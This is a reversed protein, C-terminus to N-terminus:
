SKPRAFWWALLHVALAALALYLNLSPELESAWAGLGVALLLLLGWGRGYWPSGPFFLQVGWRWTRRQTAGAPRPLFLVSFQYIGVMLLLVGVVYAQWAASWLPLSVWVALPNRVLEHVAAGQWALWLSRLTPSATRSIGAQQFSPSWLDGGLGLAERAPGYNPALLFAQATAEPSGRGLLAFPWEAATQLLRQGEVPNERSLAYGLLARSQPTNPWARLAEQAKYTQLTGRSFAEQNLTQSAARDLGVVWWGAVVAMLAVFLTLREGLSAYALSGHRVRWLPKRVWGMFWGGAEKLGQNQAPLYALMIYLALVVYTILAVWAWRTSTQVYWPLAWGNMADLAERYRTALDPRAQAELWDAQERFLVRSAPFVPTYRLLIESWRLSAEVGNQREQRVQEAWVGLWRMVGPGWQLEPSHGRRLLDAGYAELDAATLQSPPRLWYVWYPQNQTSSRDLATANQAALHQEYQRIVELSQWNGQYAHRALENLALNRGDDLQVSPQPDAQLLRVEAPPYHRAVVGPQSLDVELVLPGQAVFARSGVTIPGMWVGQLPIKIGGMRLGDRELLPQALSPVTFAAELPGQPLRLVLRYNGAVSPVYPIVLGGNQSTVQLSQTDTPSVIQLEFAGEPLGSARIELGQGLQGQPPVELRQAGALAGALLLGLLWRARM